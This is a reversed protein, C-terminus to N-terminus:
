LFYVLDMDWFLSRRYPITTIRLMEAVIRQQKHWSILILPKFYARCLMTTASPPLDQNRFYMNCEKESLQDFVSAYEQHFNSLDSNQRGIAIVALFLLDRYISHHREIGGMKLKHRENALRKVPTQLDNCRIATVIQQIISIFWIFWFM